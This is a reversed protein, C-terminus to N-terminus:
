IHILSLTYEHIFYQQRRRADKAVRSIRSVRRPAHVPAIRRDCSSICSSRLFFSLFHHSITCRRTCAYYLYSNSLYLQYTRLMSRCDLLLATWSTSLVYPCRSTFFLCLMRSGVVPEPQANLCCELYHTGLESTERSRWDRRRQYPQVIVSGIVSGNVLSVGAGSTIISLSLYTLVNFSRARRTGM